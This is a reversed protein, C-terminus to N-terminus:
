EMTKRNELNRLLFLTYNKQRRFIPYQKEGHSNWSKEDKINQLKFLILKTTCNKTRNKKKKANKKERLIRQAEQIETKTNSM